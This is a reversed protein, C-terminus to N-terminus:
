QPLSTRRHHSLEVATWRGISAEITPSSRRDRIQPNNELAPTHCCRDIAHAPTRVRRSLPLLLFRHPARVPMADIIIQLAAADTTHRHGQGDFFETQIGLEAAKSFLNM